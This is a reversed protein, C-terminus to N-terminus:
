GGGDGERGGDAGGEGEHGGSEESDGSSRRTRLRVLAELTSTGHGATSASERRHHVYRRASAHSGPTAGSWTSKM